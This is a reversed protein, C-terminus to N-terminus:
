RPQSGSIMLPSGVNTGLIFISGPGLQGTADGVWGSVCDAEAVVEGEVVVVGVALVTGHSGIPTPIPITTSAAIMMAITNDLRRRGGLLGEVAAYMPTCLPM